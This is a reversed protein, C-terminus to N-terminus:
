LIVARGAWPKADAFSCALADALDPSHGLRKRMTAKDEIVILGHSDLAYTVSSLEGALDECAHREALTSGHFVPTEERLWRAMELWLYDRLRKPAPEGRRHSPAASSLSVAVV